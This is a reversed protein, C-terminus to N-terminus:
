LLATMSSVGTASGTIKSIACRVEKNTLISAVSRLHNITMWRGEVVENILTNFDNTEESIHCSTQGMLQESRSRAHSERTGYIGDYNCTIEEQNSITRETSLRSKERLRNCTLFLHISSFLLSLYIKMRSLQSSIPM